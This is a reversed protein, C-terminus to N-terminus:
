RMEFNLHANITFGSNRQFVNRGNTNGPLIIERPLQVIQNLYGGELRIRKSLRYGLLLGIRNQDFVNENVNKGFGIFVENYAAVYFAREGLTKGNLPCQVRLMYRARNVFFYEDETTKLPDTYRGIWRQELMFRHTFDLRGQKETLMAMQFVRHETFDRGLANIPFDGYPFTEAWAYGIRAQAKPGFQYGASIRLLGQQWDTVYNERRWQYEAHASWKSDLKINAFCGWWGVRNYDNIRTNQAFAAHTLPLFWFTLFLRFVMIQTSFNTTICSNSRM